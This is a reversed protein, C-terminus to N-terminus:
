LCKEFDRLMAEMNLTKSLGAGISTMLKVWYNLEAFSHLDLVVFLEM